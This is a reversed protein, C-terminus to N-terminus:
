GHDRSEKENKLRELETSQLEYVAIECVGRESSPVHKWEAFRVCWAVSDDHLVGARVLADVVFKGGSVDVSSPEDTPQCAHRTLVVARRRGGEWQVREIPKKKSPKKPAKGPKPKNPKRPKAVNIMAMKAAPYQDCESEVAADIVERMTTKQWTDLNAYENLTAAFPRMELPPGEGPALRKKGLQKRLKGRERRIKAMDALVSSGLELTMRFVCAKPDIASGEMERRLHDCTQWATLDAFHADKTLYADLARLILRHREPSM